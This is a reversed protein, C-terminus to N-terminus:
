MAGEALAYPKFRLVEIGLWDNLEKLSEMIPMLENIAFVKAAKEVDGFGGANNPMIGMLNPPVRHAALMDDRTADKIGTFEDKAAIQSFPLIQLGDKKGGAAYVFLNKFAGSGRADKLSKKLQEVDANNTIPDTLYVIVGAHSGNIYYNRRFLTAEGNLMASQIVAMYEPTGYIEQHISPSKVHFVSGPEFEHDNAYYTVFWYQDLNEGRRTYKAHTHKLKLPQGFRNKRLELYANGFVLWDLVFASADQRSLLPHPEYCSMIVNRKFLIPSQHHVAVDFMRALGYTSIPPEYWRGNRACEMCDLLDRRDMIPQADGFSFSQLSEIPQQILEGTVPAQAAPARLNATRSHQKKRSM